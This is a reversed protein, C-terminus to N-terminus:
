ELPDLHSVDNVLNTETHAYYEDMFAKVTMHKDNLQQVLEEIDMDSADLLQALTLGDIEDVLSEVSLIEQKVHKVPFWYYLKYFLAIVSQCMKVILEFLKQWNFIYLNVFLYMINLIPLMCVACNSFSINRGYHKRSSEDGINIFYLIFCALSLRLNLERHALFFDFMMVPIMFILNGGVRECVLLVYEYM